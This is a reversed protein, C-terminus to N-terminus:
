QKTNLLLMEKVSSNRYILISGSSDGTTKSKNTWNFNSFFADADDPHITICAKSGRSTANGNDSYGAHVNVYTAITEKNDPTFAPVRRRGIDDIINLGKETGGKHGYKNNYLYEGEKVTNAAPMNNSNSVSNPYSSGRFKQSIIGNKICYIEATYSTGKIGNDRPRNSADIVLVTERGNLDIKNVPDGACYAYPTIGYYKEALPDEGTWACAVPDYYRAGFHQYREGRLWHSTSSEANWLENEKGSFLRTYQFWGLSIM